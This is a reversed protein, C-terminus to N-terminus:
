PGAGWDWFFRRGVRDGDEFIVGEMELLARKMALGGGFGGLSGDSRLTRHCPVVIPFPNRALATGVARAAGPRGIHEALRSYSSVFGRPIAREAMLVSRQFESCRSWDLLDIPLDVSEGALYRDIATALRNLAEHRPDGDRNEGVRARKPPLLIEVVRPDPGIDRWVIVVDGFRSPVVISRTDEKGMSDRGETDV